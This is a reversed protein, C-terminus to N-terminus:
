GHLLGSEVAVRRVIALGFVGAESILPGISIQVMFTRGTSHRGPLHKALNMPRASPSGFYIELHGAHKTWLAPDLLMHVMEGILKSRHYGFMLEIQVNVLHIRGTENIVILGDPLSDVIQPWMTPDVTSQGLKRNLNALQELADQSTAVEGM